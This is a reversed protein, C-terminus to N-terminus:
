NCYVCIRLHVRGERVRLCQADHEGPFHQRLKQEKHSSQVFRMCGNEKTSDTVALRFVPICASSIRKTRERKKVAGLEKELLSCWSVFMTPHFLQVVSEHHTIFPCPIQPKCFYVAHLTCPPLNFCDIIQPVM